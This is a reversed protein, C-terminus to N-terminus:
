IRKSGHLEMNLDEILDENSGFLSIQGTSLPLLKTLHGRYWQLTGHLMSTNLWQAEESVLESREPRSAAALVLEM